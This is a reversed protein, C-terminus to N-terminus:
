FSARVKLETFLTFTPASRGIVLQWTKFPDPQQKLRKRIPAIPSFHFTCVSWKRIGCCNRVALFKVQVCLGSFHLM